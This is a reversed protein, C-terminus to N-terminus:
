GAHTNAAPTNTTILIPFLTWTYLDIQNIDRRQPLKWLCGHDAHSTWTHEYCRGEMITTYGAATINNGCRMTQKSIDIEEQCQTSM